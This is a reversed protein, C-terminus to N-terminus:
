IKSNEYDALKIFCKATAVTDALARHANILEVGLYECITKLKHNKITHLYKRSMALSDVLENDFNYRCKEGYYILFKSDFSINHAVLACNRTFKYFDPLVQQLSPAKEVMENTINNVATADEPIPKTPKILTSFTETIKGNVIKVAGIEIIECSNYDLGTTELDFVVYNKNELMPPLSKIMEFMNLQSEEHYPSPKITIYNEKESLFEIPTAEKEPIKCFAIEKVKLSLRERYEDVDCLCIVEQGDNFIDGKELLQKTPFIVCSLKTDEYVLEFNYRTKEQEESVGDKEVIKKYTSKNFFKIRGAVTVAGMGAKVKSLPLARYVMNRVHIPKVDTVEFIQNDIFVEPEDFIKRKELLDEGSDPLAFSNVCIDFSGFYNHELYNILKEVYNLKDVLGYIVENISISIYVKESDIKVQINESCIELSKFFEDSYTVISKIILDDLLFSKRYYFSTDSKIPTYQSIIKKIETKTKEEITHHQEYILYFETLFKNNHYVVKQIKIWPFEKNLVEYVENANM